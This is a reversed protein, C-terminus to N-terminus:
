PDPLAEGVPNIALRVFCKAWFLQTLDWDPQGFEWFAGGLTYIGAAAMNVSCFGGHAAYNPTGYAQAWFSSFFTPFIGPTRRAM